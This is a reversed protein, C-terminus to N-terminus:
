LCEEANPHWHLERLGKPELTVIAAALTTAIPFVKSDVIAISGGKGPAEVVPLKSLHYSYSANGSLTPNVDGNADTVNLDKSIESRLIYPSVAPTNGFVSANVGFNKALIDKPTHSIWDDVMFTTGAPDFNGSPITLKAERAYFPLPACVMTSSWSTSMIKRSVRSPTLLDRLSTGSIVKKWFIQRSNATRMSLLSSLAVLMFMAGNRRSILNVNGVEGSFNTQNVVRHWHLERLAGKKLHQQAGAIDKSAPLDTIVQERVWGGNLIRTKSDSFSWKLNVVLGADTAEEGLNDPNQLDLQKNTGGSPLV